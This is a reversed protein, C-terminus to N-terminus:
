RLWTLTLTEVPVEKNGITATRRSEFGLPMGSPLDIRTTSAETLLLDPLMQELQQKRAAKDAPAFREVARVMLQRFSEPDFKSHSTLTATRGPDGATLTVTVEMTVSGGLLPVPQELPSSITEGPTMSLGGGGFLPDLNRLLMSPATEATLGAFMARVQPMVKDRDGAPILAAAADVAALIRSRAAPWDHVRLVSGEADLEFAIPEGTFPAVMPAVAPARMDAPLSTADMRWHAFFGGGVRTFRLEEVWSAVVAPRGQRAARNRAVRYRLPTDLPPNFVIDITAPEASATTQAAAPLAPTLCALLAASLGALISRMSKGKARGEAM